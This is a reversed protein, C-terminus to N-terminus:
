SLLQHYNYHEKRQCCDSSRLFYHHLPFRRIHTKHSCCILNNLDFVKSSRNVVDDKCIPDIHHICIGSQIERGPIGLDCGHDRIIVRTRISKWESDHYLMQNLYRYSGFTEVGVGKLLKLYEYREKFSNFTILESYSKSM